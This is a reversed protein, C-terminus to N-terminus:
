SLPSSARSVAAANRKMRSETEDASAARNAAETALDTRVRSLESALKDLRAQVATQFGDPTTVLNPLPEALKHGSASMSASLGLNAVGSHNEPRRLVTRSFWATLPSFRDQIQPRGARKWAGLAAWVGLLVVLGGLGQLVVGVWTLWIM